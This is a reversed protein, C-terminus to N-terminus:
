SIVVEGANDGGLALGIAIGGFMFGAGRGREDEKLTRVALSDYM